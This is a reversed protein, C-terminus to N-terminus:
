IITIYGKELWEKSVVCDELGMDHAIQVVTERTTSLVEALVDADVVGWNRYVFLQMRTPFHKYELRTGKKVPPLSYTSM